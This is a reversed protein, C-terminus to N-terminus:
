KSLVGTAGGTVSKNVIQGVLSGAGQLLQNGAAGTASIGNTSVTVQMSGVTFEHGGGLAAQNSVSSSISSAQPDALLFSGGGRATDTWREVSALFIKPRPSFLTVHNTATNVFQSDAGAGPAFVSWGPPVAANYRKLVHATNSKKAVHACGTFLTLASVCLGCLIASVLIKNKM